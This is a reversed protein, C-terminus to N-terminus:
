VQHAYELPRKRLDDINAKVWEITETLGSSLSVESSWGLIAAAKKADMLYAQDKGMREPGDVCFYKVEIGMLDSIKVVLEKISVFEDTSFHYTEGYFGHRMTAIIGSAVDRSHIFSRISTGGGDLTLKGNGMAALITRPVIRYLQQGPGYFNAFRATIVPFDFQNYFANLSMDTAAHSVAYPTSPNYPAQEDLLKDSSGYVEPTSVRIYANLNKNGILFKHLKSKALINTQYWQDPNAWSQAVMGQGAFDIIADPKVFDILCVLKEFDKNIDIKEFTYKDINQVKDYVRFAGNIEPSRSVGCVNMGSRLCAEVTAAGAFSNSGLILVNSVNREPPGKRPNTKVM